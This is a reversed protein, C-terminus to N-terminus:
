PEPALSSLLGEHSRLLGQADLRLVGVWVRGSAGSLPKRTKLVASEFLYGKGDREWVAATYLYGSYTRTVSLDAHGNLFTALFKLRPMFEGPAVPVGLKPFYANVDGQGCGFCLGTSSFFITDGDSQELNAFEAQVSGDDAVGVTSPIVKMTNPVFLDLGALDYLAVGSLGPALSVLRPPAVPPRPVQTVLDGRPPQPIQTVTVIAYAPITTTRTGVRVEVSGDKVVHTPRASAGAPLAVPGAGAALTLAATVTGVWLRM